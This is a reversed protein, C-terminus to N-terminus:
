VVLLAVRIAEGYVRCSPRPGAIGRSSGARLLRMAHKRHHGTVSAFEDLILGREARTASSYRGVVAAVLADLTAMSIRRM